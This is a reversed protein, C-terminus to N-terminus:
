ACHVHRPLHTVNARCTFVPCSFKRRKHSKEEGEKGGERSMDERKRTKTEVNKSEETKKAKARSPETPMELQRKSGKAANEKTPPIWTEGSDEDDDESFLSKSDLSEPNNPM